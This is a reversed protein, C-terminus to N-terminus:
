PRQLGETGPTLHATSASLNDQCKSSSVHPHEGCCNSIRMLRQEPKRKRGENQYLNKNGGAKYTVSVNREEEKGVGRRKGAAKQAFFGQIAEKKREVKETRKKGQRWPSGKGEFAQVTARQRM